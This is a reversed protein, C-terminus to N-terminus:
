TRGLVPQSGASSSSSRPNTVTVGSSRTGPWRPTKAMPSTAAVSGSRDEARFRASATSAWLMPASRAPRGSRDNVAGRRRQPDTIPVWDSPTSTKAGLPRGNRIGAAATSRTSIGHITRLPM